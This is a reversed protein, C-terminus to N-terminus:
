STGWEKYPTTENVGLMAQRTTLLPGASVHISVCITLKQCSEKDKFLQESPKVPTKHSVLMLSQSGFIQPLLAVHRSLIELKMQRQGDPLTM